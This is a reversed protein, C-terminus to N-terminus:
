RLVADHADLLALEDRHPLGEWDGAVTVAFAGAATALALREVPDAGELLGALYGAVFADGAGVPDVVDVALAPVTFRAGAVTAVCGDGGRKVVAQAPGAAALADVLTEHPTDRDDDGLLCAEDVGAFVVDAAAVLRRLVPAAAAADWLASRYNLDVSVTVGAERAVAVAHDVAAAATPALAPTIGTVHLVGAGAVLDDPVDDPCLRSGASGARYYSVRTVAATRREKLMLGTPASDDRVAVLAVDEARLERVVLDGLADCGVRGVWTAPHGLRRVGIAVNSESGAMGLRLAHAQPLPGPEASSVLGMTEGLTVLGGTTHGGATRASTVREGTV